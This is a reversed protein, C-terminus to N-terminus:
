RHFFSSLLSGGGTITILFVVFMFPAFPFTRYIFIDKEQDDNFIHKISIVQNVTLGDSCSLLTSKDKDGNILKGSLEDLTQISLFSGPKLNKLKIRTIEQRDIYRHTLKMAVGMLLFLVISMQIIRILELSQNTTILYTGYIFGTLSIIIALFKRKVLINSIYIQIPFILLYSIPIGLLSVDPFLSVKSFILQMDILFFTTIVFLKIYTHTTNRIIKSNEKSFINSFSLPKHFYALSSQIARVFMKLLLTLCIVLLTDTLIVLSPFYQINTKSYYEIPILLAYLPFLKADGAAWLNFYWLTYGVIFAITGNTILEIIYHINKPQHIIFTSYTFLFSYLFIVYCYGVILHSNKIKGDKIDSISTFIGIVILPILFLSNIIYTPIIM